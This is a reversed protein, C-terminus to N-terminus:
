MNDLLNRSLRGYKGADTTLTELLEKARAENGAKLYSLALYWQAPSKFFRDESQLLQEFRQQAQSVEGTQLYCIGVCIQVLPTNLSSDPLQQFSQLAKAYEKKGYQGVAQTLPDTTDGSESRLGQFGDPIAYPEYNAAFLEQHQPGQPMSLFLWTGAIVLLSISAAIMWNRNNWLSFRQKAKEAFYEKGIRQLKEELEIEEKNTIARALNRHLDVSAKLFGDSAMRAEFDAQEASSMEKNLYLEIQEFLLEQASM